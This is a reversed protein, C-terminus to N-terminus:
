KALIVAKVTSASGEVTKVKVRVRQCCITVPLSIGEGTVNKNSPSDEWDTGNHTEQLRFVHTGHSGTLGIIQFSCITATETDISASVTASNNANLSAGNNMRYILGRSM